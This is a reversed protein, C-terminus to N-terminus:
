WWRGGEWGGKVRGISGWCVEVRKLDLEEFGEEHAIQSMDKMEVDMGTVADYMRLAGAVDIDEDAFVPFRLHSTWPILFSEYTVQSMDM